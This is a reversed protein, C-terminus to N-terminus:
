FQFYIFPEEVTNFRIILLIILYYVGWRLPRSLKEELKELPFQKQKTYVEAIILVFLFVIKLGILISLNNDETFSFIRSVITYVDGINQARFVLSVMAAIFLFYLLSLTRPIKYLKKQLTDGNKFKIIRESLLILGNLVGFALFTYNAGHWVGVLSMTLMLGLSYAFRTKKRFKKIFPLYVYDTFWNTLTIHWRQWFETISTSLYPINFNRSLKFGFLKATGIAIDTYGSFDCYIQFFFLLSGYLLMVTGYSEPNDFVLSVGVGLKDAVLIKKFLGWLIQRLGEKSSQLNFSRTKEFQPLLKKAREIPGAVLQPFFSVFCLFNLINKTPQIRGRYIDISYSLTQFTYFSLGVPVIVNWISIESSSGILFKFEEIFFNFYKFTILVGINWFVSTALLWRKRNQTKSKSLLIGISFDLLSSAVLLGLFRWDWLGYFVYSALLLLFNQFVRRKVGVSWYLAYVIVLFIGFEISNFLM